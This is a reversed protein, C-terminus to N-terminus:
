FLAYPIESLGFTYYAAAARIAADGATSGTIKESGPGGVFLDKAINAYAMWPQGSAGTTAADAGKMGTLAEKGGSLKGAVADYSGLSDPGAGFSLDTGASIGDTWGGSGSLLSSGASSAGAGAGAGAGSLSGLSSMKSALEPPANFTSMGTGYSGGAGASTGSLPIGSARSQNVMSIGDEPGRGGPLLGRSPANVTPNAQNSNLGFSPNQYGMSEPTPKPNFLNGLDRPTNSIQDGVDQFYQNVHGGEGLIPKNGITWPKTGEVWTGADNYAGKTGTAFDNIGSAGKYALGAQMIDNGVNSQQFPPAQVTSVSGSGRNMPTRQGQAVPGALQSLNRRGRAMRRKQEQERQRRSRLAM